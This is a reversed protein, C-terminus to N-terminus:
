AAKIVKGYEYIGNNYDPGITKIYIPELNPKLSLRLKEKEEQM